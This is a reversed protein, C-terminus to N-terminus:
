PERVIRYFFERSGERARRRELTVGPIARLERARRLGETAPKGPKGAAERIEEASRWEGDALLFAVRKTGARLDTLDDPTLIGRAGVQELFQPTRVESLRVPPRPPLLLRARGVPRGEAIEPFLSQTRDESM